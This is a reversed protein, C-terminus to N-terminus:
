NVMVQDCHLINEKANIQAANIQRNLRRATVQRSRLKYLHEGM